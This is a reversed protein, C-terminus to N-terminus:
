GRIWTAVTEALPLPQADADLLLDYGHGSEAAEFRSGEPAQGVIAQAGTVQDEGEGDAMAVLVPVKLARGGDVVEIGDWDVPGSLDVAADVDPDTAATMLAVSGGMSAGVVVVRTAGLRTRAERVAVGVADVQHPGKRDGRCKSEGYGCLDIALVQVGQAVLDAAYPLWGCLGNGDTQHLLVAVTPGTGATVASVKGVEADEIVEPAFGTDAVDTPQPGCRGLPGDLAQWPAQTASPTSASPTPTPRPTAAGRPEDDGGCGALALAALLILVAGIRSKM